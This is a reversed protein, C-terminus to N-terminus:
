NLGKLEYSMVDRPELWRTFTGNCWCVRREIHPIVYFRAETAAVGMLGQMRESRKSQCGLACSVGGCWMLECSLLVGGHLCQM